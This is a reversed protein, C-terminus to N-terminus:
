GASCLDDRPCFMAWVPNYGSTVTRRCPNNVDGCDLGNLESGADPTATVTVVTGIPFQADCPGSLTQNWNENEWPNGSASAMHCNIGAPSSTVTGSGWGDISVALTGTASAQTEASANAPMLMLTAGLLSIAAGSGIWRFPHSSM